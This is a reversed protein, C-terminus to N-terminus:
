VLAKLGSYQEPLAYKNYINQLAEPDNRLTYQLTELGSQSLSPLKQKPFYDKEEEEKKEEEKPKETTVKRRRTITPENGGDQGSLDDLQGSVLQLGGGSEILYELGTTPDTALGIIDTDTLQEGVYKAAAMPKSLLSSGIAGLINGMVSRGKVELGQASYSDLVAQNKPSVTTSLPNLSDLSFDDFNFLDGFIGPEQKIDPEGVFDDLEKDQTDQKEKEKRAKQELLSTRLNAVSDSLTGLPGGGTYGDYYGSTISGAAGPVGEIVGALIDEAEKMTRGEALRNLTPWYEKDWLINGRKDRELQGSRNLSYTTDPGIATSMGYDFGGRQNFSPTSPSDFTGSTGYYDELNDKVDQAKDAAVDAAIAAQEAAADAMAQDAAAEAAGVAEAEYSDDTGFGLDYFEPLGTMPNITGAGGKDMLMQAEKPNIHALMTDGKRGYSELSDALAQISDVKGGKAKEDFLSGDALLRMDPDDSFGRTMNNKLGMLEQDFFENHRNMLEGDTPPQTERNKEESTAYRDFLTNYDISGDRNTPYPVDPAQQKSQKTITNMFMSNSNPLTIKDGPKMDKLQERAFLFDLLDQKEKERAETVRQPIGGKSAPTSPDFPDGTPLDPDAIAAEKYAMADVADMNGQTNAGGTDDNFNDSAGGPGYDGFDDGFNGFGGFDLDGGEDRYVVTMPKPSRMMTSGELDAALKAM